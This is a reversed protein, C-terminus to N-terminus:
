LKNERYRLMNSKPIKITSYIRLNILEVANSFLNLPKIHEVEFIM